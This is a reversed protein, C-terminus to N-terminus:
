QYAKWKVPYEYYSIPLHVTYTGDAEQIVKFNNQYDEYITNGSNVMFSPSYDYIVGKYDVICSDIIGQDYSRAYGYSIFSPKFPFGTIVLKYFSGTAPTGSGRRVRLYYKNVSDSVNATGSARLSINDRAILDEFRDNHNGSLKTILQDKLGKLYPVVQHVGTVTELLTATNPLIKLFTWTRVTPTHPPNNYDDNAEITVTHKGLPLSTWQATLNLTQADTGQYTRIVNGNLKETITIADNENDAVTYPKILPSSLAGLFEDKGDIVPVLNTVPIFKILKSGTNNSTGMTFTLEAATLVRDGHMYTHVVSTAMGPTAMNSVETFNVPTKVATNNDVANFVTVLEKDNFISPINPVLTATNGFKMSTTNEISRVNRYTSVTVYYSVNTVGDQSTIVFADETGDSIKYFVSMAMTSIPQENISLIQWGDPAKVLPLSGKSYVYAVLMDGENKPTTIPCTITPSSGGSFGTNTGIFEVQKKDTTPIIYDITLNPRYDTGSTYESSIITTYAPSDSDLAIGYGQGNVLKQITNKIDVTFSADAQSPTIVTADVASDYNPKNNWNLTTTDLPDLVTHVNMAIQSVGTGSNKLTLIASNIIANNPILGLNFNLFAIYSNIGSKGVSFFLSKDSIGTPQDSRAFTDDIKVNNFTLKIVTMIKGGEM